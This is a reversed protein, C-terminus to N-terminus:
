PRSTQSKLAKSTEEGKKNSVRTCKRATRNQFQVIFLSIQLADELVPM